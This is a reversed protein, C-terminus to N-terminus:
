VDIGNQEAYHELAQRIERGDQDLLDAMRNALSAADLGLIMAKVPGLAAPAMSIARFGLGILAMAELPHGAMEGCLTVPVGHKKAEGVIRRLVRLFAPSLPDFRDAVRMNSRDAAFLFQQLDNSGISVFDVNPLLQDLQWLLAPVEIMAGILIRSPESRGHRGLLEREREILARAAEYESVESIMPLMLRLERGQAARMLARVQTRLLAPRDLAMRIARWGLAPNAEQAHRFYPLMKDGGIDLSRFVVPKDGVTDLVKEYTETQQDLRPLSSSIMFQLETRFLGIGDAGSEELHPLDVLLGANIMMSITRGDKTVAPQDRLEAYRAQRKARFQVKDIYASIVDSSPRIHVEGADADLVIPDDTEAIDRVGRMQGVAAIGLARAVIAVHSAFGSEELVLGRLKEIDYDLLESPGMTRAVLVADEPLDENTATMTRGALLRQLRNSLDDLDYLRERLFPDRQRLMRARTDNQVREVAAEATLGSKIAEELRQNWGRDNAYMQYAELVDRHEGARAMDARGLMGEVATRLETLAAQVRQREEEPDEAILETVVVRPEHLIVHGLAVGESLTLGKINRSAQQGEAGNEHGLRLEKATVLEALVM